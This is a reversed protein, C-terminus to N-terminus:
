FSMKSVILPPLIPSPEPISENMVKKLVNTIGQQQTIIPTKSLKEGFDFRNDIRARKNLPAVTSTSPSNFQESIRKIADFEDGDNSYDFVTLDDKDDNRKFLLSALDIEENSPNTGDDETGNLLQENLFTTMDLNDENKEFVDALFNMPIFYDWRQASTKGMKSELWRTKFMDRLNKFNKRALQPHMPDDNHFVTNMVNCIDMWAKRNITQNGYQEDSPDWLYPRKRVEEILRLKFGKERIMQLVAPDRRAPLDISNELNEESPSIDSTRSRKKALFSSQHHSHLLLPKVEKTSYCSTTLTLSSTDTSEERNESACPSIQTNERTMEETSYDIPLNGLFRELNSAEYGNNEVNERLHKQSRKIQAVTQTVSESHCLPDVEGLSEFSDREQENLEDNMFQISEFFEWRRLMELPPTENEFYKARAQKRQHKLQDKLNRWLYVLEGALEEVRTMMGFEDRMTQAITVWADNMAQKSKSLPHKNQYLFPYDKVIELM